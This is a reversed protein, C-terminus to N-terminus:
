RQDGDSFRQKLKRFMAAELQQITWGKKIAYHILVGFLDGLEEIDDPANCLENMEEIAQALVFSSAVRQLRFGKRHQANAAILEEIFKWVDKM